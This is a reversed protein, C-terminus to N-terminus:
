VCVAVEVTVARPVMADPADASGCAVDGCALVFSEVFAAAVHPVIANGYGRLRGVRASVGHALPFTGPEVPRVKGDRCPLWDAHTWDIPALPRSVGREAAGLGQAGRGGGPGALRGRPANALSEAAAAASDGAARGAAGRRDADDRCARDADPAHDPAGGPAERREHVWAPGLQVRGERQDHALPRRRSGGGDEGAGVSGGDGQIRGADPRDDVHGHATGERWERGLGCSDDLEGDGGAVRREAVQERVGGGVPAPVGAGTPGTGDPERWGSLGLSAADGMANTRVAGWYVRQRIHPAGVSAAALDAAGVAYSLEALDSRVPALWGRGAKSAVQEGVVIAPRCERVLRHLEPWLHRHDDTCKQRGAASFPQCPCSGTWIPMDDPIGALRLAYSWGGIGAFFHCQTYGLLDGPQVETISREDVDGDAICGQRILERLWAAAKPDIENYYARASVTGGDTMGDMDGSGSDLFRPRSLLVNRSAHM